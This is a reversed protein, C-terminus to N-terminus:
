TKGSYRADLLEAPVLENADMGNYVAYKGLFLDLTMHHPFTSGGAM